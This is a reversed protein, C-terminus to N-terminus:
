EGTPKHAQYAADILTMLAAAEARLPAPMTAIIDGTTGPAAKVINKIRTDMNGIMAAARTLIEQIQKGAKKDTMTGRRHNGKASDALKM